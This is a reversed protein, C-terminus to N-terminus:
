LCEPHRESAAALVLLRLTSPYYLDMPATSISADLKSGRSACDVLAPIAAYAAGGFPKVPKDTLVNIIRPEAGAEKAWGIFPAMVSGTQGAWVLYLPVRIANWGFDPDFGMAPQPRSAALSIWDSPLGHKGFRASETLKIGADFVSQWDYEPAAAKLAPLAPFVWYSLNVVPGDKRDRASFGAAGPMLLRVGSGDAIMGTAIARAIVGGLKRYQPASFRDAANMLAWAILIDGDTANNTDRVPPTSRPDFRWAFLADDRIGLNAVTWSWIRDFTERDGAFSALLMGYGQGESHSIDGNADDVVRGEPAVFHGRWQQWVGSPLSATSPSPQTEAISMPIPETAFVTLFTLAALLARARM